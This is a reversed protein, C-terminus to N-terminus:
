VKARKAPYPARLINKGCVLILIANGVGPRGYKLKCSILTVFYAGFLALIVINNPERSLFEVVRM